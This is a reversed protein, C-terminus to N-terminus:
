NIWLIIITTRMKLQKSLTTIMETLNKEAHITIFGVIGLVGYVFYGLM